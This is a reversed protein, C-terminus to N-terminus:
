EDKNKLLKDIKYVIILTNIYTWLILGASFGIVFNLIDM